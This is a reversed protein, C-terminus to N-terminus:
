NLRTKLLLFILIANKIFLYVLFSNISINRRSYDEETEIISVDFKCSFFIIFTPFPYITQNQFTLVCEVIYYVHLSFSTYTMRAHQLM